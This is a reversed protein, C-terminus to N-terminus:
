SVFLRQIKGLKSELQHRCAARGSDFFHEANMEARRAAGDKWSAWSKRKEREEGVGAKREGAEEENRMAGDCM